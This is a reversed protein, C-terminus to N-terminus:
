KNWIECVKQPANDAKCIRDLTQSDLLTVLTKYEALQETLSEVKQRNIDAQFASDLMRPYAEEIAIEIAEQCDQNALTKRLDDITSVLNDNEEFLQEESFDLEENQAALTAVQEKCETLTEPEGIEEAINCATFLSSVFIITAVFKITEM